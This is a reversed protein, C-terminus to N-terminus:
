CAMEKSSAPRYDYWLDDVSQIGVGAFANWAPNM